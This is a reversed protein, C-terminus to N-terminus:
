KRMHHKTMQFINNTHRTFLWICCFLIDEGVSKAHQEIASFAGEEDSGMPYYFANKYDKTSEKLILTNNLIAYDSVFLDRWMYKNGVSIDCFSVPSNEFYEKVILVNEKLPIFQMKVNFCARRRM